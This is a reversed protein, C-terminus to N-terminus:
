RGPVEFTVTGTVTASGCGNSATVTIDIVQFESGSSHMTIVGTSPDISLTNPAIVAPSSTISYTLGTNPSFVTSADFTITGGPSVTQLPITGTTIPNGGSCSQVKEDPVALVQPLYVAPDATWALLRNPTPPLREGKYSVPTPRDLYYTANLSVNYTSPLTYKGATYDGELGLTWDGMYRVHMWEVAAEYNNFPRRVAASANFAVNETLVQRFNFTGGFGDADEGPAYKKDYDVHDYNVDVGARAGQWPILSVGASAGGADSGAIRRHDILMVNNQTVITLTNLTKSPAHAYYADVDIQPDYAMNLFDYLYGLGVSGQNVWQSTDGAFFSYDIKQWLYDGSVKLYQNEIFNWGLTGGVRFNKVGAEGLLSYATTNTINNTFGGKLTPGIFATPQGAQTLTPFLLFLSLLVVFVGMMSKLLSKMKM